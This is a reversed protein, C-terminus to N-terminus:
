VGGDAGLDNPVITWSVPRRRHCGEPAAKRLSRLGDFAHDEAPVVQFYVPDPFICRSDDCSMYDLRGTIPLTPDSLRVRQTFLAHGKFKKVEMDFMEDHGEIEKAGTQDSCRDIGRGLTDFALTTPIPGMDGTLQQSYVYWGDDIDARFILDGEGDGHDLMSISWSVPELVRAWAPCRPMTVTALILFPLLFRVVHM